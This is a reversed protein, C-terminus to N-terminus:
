LFKVLLMFNILVVWNTRELHVLDFDDVTSINDAFSDAFPLQYKILHESILTRQEM